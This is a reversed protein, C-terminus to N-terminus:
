SAQPSFYIKRSEGKAGKAIKAHPKPAILLSRRLSHKVFQAWV